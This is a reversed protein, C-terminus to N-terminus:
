RKTKRSPFFLTSAIVIVFSLIVLVNMFREFNINDIITKPNVVYIILLSISGIVGFVIRVKKIMNGSVIFQVVLV